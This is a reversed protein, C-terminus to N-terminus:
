LKGGVISVFPNNYDIINRFTEECDEKKLSTLFEKAKERNFLKGTYCLYDLNAYPTDQKMLYGNILINKAEEFEEITIGNEAINKIEEKVLEITKMAKNNTASFDVILMGNNCYDIIASYINYCLSKENRAKVFLRSSMSGGLVINILSIKLRDMNTYGITYYGLIVNAQNLKKEETVVLPKNILKNTFNKQITKTYKKDLFKNDFYKTIINVIFNEDFDGVVSIVCNKAFYHCNMYDIIDQKSIQTLLEIEGALKNALGSGNFMAQTLNQFALDEPLDNHMYIEEIIVQKEKELGKEDFVSDFLMDSFLECVRDLSTKPCVASFTTFEASTNANPEASIKNFESSLQEQTYKSTGKFVCHEIFHSIGYPKEEDEAGVCFQIKVKTTYFDPTKVFVLKLGSKFEILKESYRM